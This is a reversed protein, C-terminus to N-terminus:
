FCLFCTCLDDVYLSPDRSNTYCSLTYRLLFSLCRQDTIGEGRTVAHRRVTVCGSASGLPVRVDNCYCWSHFQNNKAMSVRPRAVLFTVISAPNYSPIVTDYFSVQAAFLVFVSFEAALLMVLVSLDAACSCM